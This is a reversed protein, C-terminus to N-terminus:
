LPFFIVFVIFTLVLMKIDVAMSPNCHVNPVAFFDGRGGNQGTKGWAKRAKECIFTEVLCKWPIIIFFISSM